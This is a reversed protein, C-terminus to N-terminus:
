LKALPEPEATSEQPIWFKVETGKAPTSAVELRGHAMEARESMAALGLHGPRPRLKDIAFGIGDDAVTGEFGGPGGVLRVLVTSAKAHKRVNTLSEQIVRYIIAGTDHAPEETLRVDLTGGIGIDARFQDLYLRLAAALGDRELAPPRLEFMLNRLRTIALQVTDELKALAELQGDDTLQRRLLQLRLGAATIAQISDDHIDSAIRLREEEQTRVLHALLLHRESRKSETLDRIHAVGLLGERTKLPKLSIDVPFESGDKRRGALELGAGMPRRQTSALYRTRHGVYVNRFREALLTEVVNGVLERRDYGFMTEARANVQKIRGEPDIIVVGDPSAEVFQGFREDVQRIEEEVRRRETIDRITELLAWGAASQIRSLSIEIGFESGDRRRGAVATAFGLPHLKPEALFRNRHEVHTAGFRAPFLIEVSKGLLDAPPYGFLRELHQNALVIRGGRDLILMADRSSDLTRQALDDESGAPDATREPSRESFAIAAEVGLPTLITASSVEVPFRTGDRRICTMNAILAMGQEAGGPAPRLKGVQERRSRPALLKDVSAGVLDEAEYGFMELLRRNALIVNGDSDILVTASMSGELLNRTRAEALVRARERQKLVAVEAVIGGITARALATSMSFQGRAARRIAEVIESSAAGKLQYGVAGSGLMEAVAGREEHASFGLLMTEPSVKAIVDAAVPGGGGGMRFDVLAVNPRLEAAMRGAAEADAAVGVLEIDPENRLVDALADRVLEDDDAVLVTVLPM